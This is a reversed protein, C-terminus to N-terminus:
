HYTWVIDNTNNVDHNISASVDQTIEPQVVSFQLKEAPKRPPEVVAPVEVQAMPKQIEVRGRKAKPSKSRIRLGKLKLSSTRITFLDILFGTPVSHEEQKIVRNIEEYNLLMERQARLDEETFDQLSPVDGWNRPDQGKGKSPGAVVNFSILDGEDEVEEATARRSKPAPVPTPAFEYFPGSHESTIEGFSMEEQYSDVAKRAPRARFQAAIAEHCRVSAQLEEHSM